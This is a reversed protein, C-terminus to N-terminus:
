ATGIATMLVHCSSLWLFNNSLLVLQASLLKAIRFCLDIYENKSIKNDM